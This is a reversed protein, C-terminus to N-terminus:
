FYGQKKKDLDLIGAIGMASGISPLNYLASKDYTPMNGFMNPVSDKVSTSMTAPSVGVTTHTAPDPDSWSLDTNKRLHAYFADYDDLAQKYDIGGATTLNGKADKAFDKSGYEPRKPFLKHLGTDWLYKKLFSSDAM